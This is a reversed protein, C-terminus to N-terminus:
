TRSGPVPRHGLAELAPVGDDWASGDLWPGAILVTDM